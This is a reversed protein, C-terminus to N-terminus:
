LGGRGTLNNPLKIKKYTFSTRVECSVCTLAELAQLPSLKVRSEKGYLPLRLTTEPKQV